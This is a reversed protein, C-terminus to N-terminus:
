SVNLFSCCRMITRRTIYKSIKYRKHTSWSHSLCVSLCVSVCGSLRAYLVAALLLLVRALFEATCCTDLVTRLWADGLNETSLSCHLIVHGLKQKDDFFEAFKYTYVHHADTHSVPQVIDHVSSEFRQQQQQQQHHHQHHHHCQLISSCFLSHIILSLPWKLVACPPLQLVSLAIEAHRM